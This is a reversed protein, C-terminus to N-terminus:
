KGAITREEGPSCGGSSSIKKTGGGGSEGGEYDLRKGWNRQTPAGREGVVGGKRDRKALHGKKEHIGGRIRGKGERKGGGGGGGKKNSAPVRGRQDL